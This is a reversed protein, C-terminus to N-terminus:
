VREAFELILRTAPPASHAAPATTGLGTVRATFLEKLKTSAARAVRPKGDARVQAPWLNFSNHGGPTKQM